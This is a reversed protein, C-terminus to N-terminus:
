FEYDRDVEKVFREIDEVSEITRGRKDAWRYGVDAEIGVAFVEDRCRVPRRMVHLINEVGLQWRPHDLSIHFTISDHTQLRIDVGHTILDIQRPRDQSDPAVGDRFKRMRLGFTLEDMAMNVRGATNAQGATAAIARLVADDHPSELFRQYYNFITTFGRTKLAHKKLEMYWSHDGYRAFRPYYVRFKDDLFSCFEALEQQSWTGAQEEGVEKAAAVIAERGASMLLTLGAMLYHGGHVLKKTIQRIGTIPHVVKDDKAAKGAVISEYTWNPFYILANTAHIDKGSRVLDIKKQEGSEFSVFVDDAASFDVELLLGNRDAVGFSRYDKRINQANSGYGFAHGSSSYRSTTTGVGGYSTLFRPAAKTEYPPLMALGVVNSLQKAPEIANLVGDVIRRFVPHEGRMARLPMKGTSADSLKTVFRGKANRKKAGLLVYFLELKQKPSNPNFEPDAVLYRLRALAEDAAQSLKVNFEEMKKVDVRLGKMSMALGAIVRTHAYTFNIHAAENAILQEILIITIRLTSETDAMGYHLYNYWDNDKRGAKWYQYDDLLISSVFDLSKPLEPYFAWWMSMSDFAYNTVPCGYRIFWAQDYAGNHLTFPIGSANIRTAFKMFADYMPNVGQEPNKGGTIPLGFSKIFGDNTLGTYSIVTIAIIHNKNKKKYPFTEVDTAILICRSLFDSAVRLDSDNWCIKRPYKGPKVKM